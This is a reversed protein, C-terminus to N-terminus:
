ISQWPFPKTYLTERKAYKKLWDLLFATGRVDTRNYEIIADLVDRDQKNLWDEFATVSERGGKVGGKWEFGLYAGIAKLSYFYLPFVCHEAVLTKIDVMNGRFRELWVNEEDGYRKALITLRALEYSAYHYVTYEAPLTELWLLFQKWMVCEDTVKEAVFAKYEGLYFDGIWFGFLYDMDDAPYSEIDFHIELGRTEHDLPRKIIVCQDRLSRAQRQVALLARLTFGPSANELQVPDMDAADDVTRIGHQRLAKLKRIDVNYLLSIDNGEQALRKCANGWPSADECSKRYVSEPCEGQVVRELEVTIEHFEALFASADFTLREGDGNVIAPHAPFTGQLRELLEAYFTLQAMHDKRLHHARKIDVPVYYWNGFRSKGEHRELIDPRGVWDREADALWGQYIISVGKRMLAETAAIGEDRRVYDLSIADTGVFLARVIDQEHRIGDAQQEEEATTLARRDKSDGFREWYPWHPCQFYRYYDTATLSM